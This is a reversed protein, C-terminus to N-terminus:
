ARTRLGDLWKTVGEKCGPCTKTFNALYARDRRERVGGHNVALRHADCSVGEGHDCKTPEVGDRVGAATDYRPELSCYVILGGILGDSM